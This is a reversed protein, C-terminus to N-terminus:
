KSGFQLFHYPNTMFYNGCKQHYIWINTKNSIYDGIVIYESGYKKYVEDEFGQQTKKIGM